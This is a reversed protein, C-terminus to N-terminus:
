NILECRDLVVRYIFNEHYFSGLFDVVLKKTHSRGDNTIYKNSTFIVERLSTSNKPIRKIIIRPRNHDNPDDPGGAMGDFTFVTSMAGQSIGDNQPSKLRTVDLCIGSYSGSFLEGKLSIIGNEAEVINRRNVLVGNEFVNDEHSFILNKELNIMLKEPNTTKELNKRLDQYSEHFNEFDETWSPEESETSSSHSSM